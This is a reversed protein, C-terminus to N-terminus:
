LEAMPHGPACNVKELSQCQVLGNQYQELVEQHRADPKGGFCEDQIFRRIHICNLLGQIRARVQSCPMRDLRKVSNGSTSCSAGPMANCIRNKEAQLHDLVADDCTQDPHRRPGARPAAATATSKPGGMAKRGALILQEREQQPLQWFRDYEEQSSWPVLTVPNLTNTWALSRTEGELESPWLLMALLAAPINLLRAAAGTPARARPGREVAPAPRVQREPPQM